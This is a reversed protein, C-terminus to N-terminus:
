QIKRLELYYRKDIADGMSFTKRPLVGHSLIDSFLTNKEISPLLFGLSGPERSLRILSDDGHIYDMVGSHVALWNDLFVQLKALPLRGDVCDIRITGSRDASLYPIAIGDATDFEKLLAAILRGSDCHKIIRHIPEFYQAEDFINNLECLAWRSPHGGWDLNPDSVKLEEYCAKATALSHNGDGVAYFLRAGPHRQKQDEEYRQLREQLAEKEKGSVLWGSVHGGGLMLDFGYLKPLTGKERSLPDMIKHQEDECLLLVHPLELSAGRRVAMRPPIRERVTKETARVPVNETGSYDYQTLDVKGILGRRVSGGHMVRETYIFCDPYLHLFGEQLYDDMKRHIEKIREMPASELEAEPLILSYSSPKAATREKIVRWYEPQSTFQDCAIVSWDPLLNEKPLLIDASSFVSDIM